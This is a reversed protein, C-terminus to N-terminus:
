SSTSLKLKSCQRTQFRIAGFAYMSVVIFVSILVKWKWRRVTQTRWHDVSRDPTYTLLSIDDVWITNDRVISMEFLFILLETEIISNFHFTKIEFPMM